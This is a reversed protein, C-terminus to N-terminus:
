NGGASRAGAKRARTRLQGRGQGLAASRRRAARGPSRPASYAYTGSTGDTALGPAAAAREGLPEVSRKELGDAKPGGEGGIVRGTSQCIGSGKSGSRTGPRSTVAGPDPLHVGRAPGPSRLLGVLGGPSSAAVGTPRTCPTPASLQGCDAPSEDGPHRRSGSAGRPASRDALRRDLPDGRHGAPM